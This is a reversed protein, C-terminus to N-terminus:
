SVITSVLMDVYMYKVGLSGVMSCFNIISWLVFAIEHSILIQCAVGSVSQVIIAALYHALVFTKRSKDM